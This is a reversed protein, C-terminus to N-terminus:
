KWPLPYKEFNDDEPGHHHELLDSPDFLGTGGKAETRHKVWEPHNPDKPKLTQIVEPNTRDQKGNRIPYTKQYSAVSPIPAPLQDMSIHTGESRLIDLGHERIANCRPHQCRGATRLYFSAQSSIRPSANPKEVTGPIARGQGVQRKLSGLSESTEKSRTQPKEVISKYPLAVDGSFMPDNDSPM